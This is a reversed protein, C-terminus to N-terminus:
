IHILSLHVGAPVVVVHTDEDIGLEGILKELEPVTPLLFPVGGREVRWGAKDYDGHIAGPIHGQQYVDAGDAAPRIDLVIVNPDKLHEKVWAASVLPTAIEAHGPVALGFVIVAAAALPALPRFAAFLSNM